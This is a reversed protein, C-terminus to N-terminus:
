SELPELRIAIADDRGFMIGIFQDAWGYKQAMLNNITDREGLVTQARMQETQGDRTFSIEDRATIRQYWGAEPSGRLWQADDHEVVWLRTESVSGDANQSGVVVVEGSESAILQMAMVAVFLAVLGGLVKLVIKM